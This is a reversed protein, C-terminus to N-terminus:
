GLGLQHMFEKMDYNYQYNVLKGADNFEMVSSYELDLKKGNGPIAGQPMMMQGTFTGKGRIRTTVKNGEVKQDIVTGKIDPMAKVFSDSYEVFAEAGKMEQGTALDKGTVGPVVFDKTKARFSRDNFTDNYKVALQKLDMM